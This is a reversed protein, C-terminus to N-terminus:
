DRQPDHTKRTGEPEPHNENEAHRSMITENYEEASDHYHTFDRKDLHGIVTDTHAQRVPDLFNIVPRDGVPVTPQILHSPEDNMQLLEDLGEIPAQIDDALQLAQGGMVMASIIISKM